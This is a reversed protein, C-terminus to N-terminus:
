LMIERMTEIFVTIQGDNQWLPHLRMALLGPATDSFFDSRVLNICSQAQANSSLRSLNERVQELEPETMMAVIRFIDLAHHRGLEKKPDTKRDRYATLKMLLYCLPHPIFISATFPTGSSLKGAVDMVFPSASILLAGDTPHAHLDPHDKSAPRARRIDANIGPNKRLEDIQSTLLDIKVGMSGRITRSFQLFESGPVVTYGLQDLAHRIAQMSHVDAVLETSLLLDLDQTARPTPWLDAPIVTRQGTEAIQLQKLYLGYGGGLLIGKADVDLTHLLDLLSTRLIDDSM